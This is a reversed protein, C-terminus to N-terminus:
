KKKLTNQKMNLLLSPVSHGSAYEVTNRKLNVEKHIIMNEYVYTWASLPDKTVSNFLKSYENTRLGRVYFVDKGIELTYLKITSHERQIKKFEESTDEKYLMVMPFNVFESLIDGIFLVILGEDDLISPSDLEKVYQNVILTRAATYNDQAYMHQFFIKWVLYSVTKKFKAVYKIGDAEQEFVFYDDAKVEDSKFMEAKVVKARDNTLRKPETKNTLKKSM